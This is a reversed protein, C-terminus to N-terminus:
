GSLGEAPVTVLCAFPTAFEVEYAQGDRWVGVVTGRSGAPLDRGVSRVHITQALVVAELERFACRRRPTTQTTTTVPM